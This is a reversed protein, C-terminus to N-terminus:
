LVTDIIEADINNAEALALDVPLSNESPGPIGKRNPRLRAQLMSVISMQERTEQFSAKVLEAPVHATRELARLLVKIIIPIVHAFEREDM